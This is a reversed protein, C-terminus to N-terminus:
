KVLIGESIAHAYLENLIEPPLLVSDQAWDWDGDRGVYYGPRVNVNSGDEIRQIVKWYDRSGAGKQFVGVEDVVRGHKSNRPTASIADPKAGFEFQPLQNESM